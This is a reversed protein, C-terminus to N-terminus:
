EYTSQNNEYNLALPIARCFKPPTQPNRYQPKDGVYSLSTEM